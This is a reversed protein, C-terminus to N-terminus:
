VVQYDKLEQKAEMSLRAYSTTWLVLWGVVSIYLSIHGVMKGIIKAKAKKAEAEKLSVKCDSLYLKTKAVGNRSWRSYGLICIAFGIGYVIFVVALYVLMGKVANGDITTMTIAAVLGGPGTAANMGIGLGGWTNLAGMIFGGCAAGICSLIFPKVRPLSIGYILPEGIGLFGPLIAGSIQKRLISGKGALVWLGLAVGVQAVGGMAMIPFLGNVGTSDILAFYIPIFGQHVGLALAFLFIGALLAAGFPNTYLNNFLWTIGTFLYGAVPIVLVFNLVLMLVLVIVPTIITDLVGPMFQRITKELKITIGAAIMAGILGAHPAGLSAVKNKDLNIFGVTFWNHEIDSAKIIKGLFNYGTIIDGEYVPIFVSAVTVGAFGCFMASVLAVLGPNGGFEKGLRWGVAIIFVNTLLNLMMVLIHNWSQVTANANAGGNVSLILGAIGSLLGAGIFAPILPTFVKSIKSFFGKVHGNNQRLKAKQLQGIDAASQFTPTVAQGDATVLQPATKMLEGFEKTVKNVFGPGLVIQYEDAGGMVLGLVGPVQKIKEPDFNPLAKIRLRTMCNTYSIINSAGIIDYISKAVQAPQAM